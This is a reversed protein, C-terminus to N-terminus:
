KKCEIKIVLAKFLNIRSLEIYYLRLTEKEKNKLKKVESYSLSDFGCRDIVEKTKFNYIKNSRNFITMFPSFLIFEIDPGYVRLDPVRYIYNSNTTDKFVNNSYKNKM